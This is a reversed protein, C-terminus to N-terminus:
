LQHSPINGGYRMVEVKKCQEEMFEDYLRAKEEKSKNKMESMYDDLNEKTKEGTKSHITKSLSTQLPEFHTLFLMVQM